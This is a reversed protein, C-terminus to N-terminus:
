FTNISRCAKEPTRNGSDEYWCTYIKRTTQRWPDFRYYSRYVNFDHSRIDDIQRDIEFLVSYTWRNNRWSSTLTPRMFTSGAHAPLHIPASLVFGSGKKSIQATWERSADWVGVRVDGTDDGNADKTLKTLFVYAVHPLVSTNQDYYYDEVCAQKVVWGDKQIADLEPFFRDGLSSESVKKKFDDLTFCGSSVGSISV